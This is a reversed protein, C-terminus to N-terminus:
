WFTNRAIWNTYKIKGSESKDTGSRVFVKRAEDWIFYLLFYTFSPVMFHPTASARTGLGIELPRLYSIAVILCVESLVAM